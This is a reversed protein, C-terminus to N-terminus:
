PTMIIRGIPPWGGAPRDAAQAGIVGFRAVSLVGLGRFTAGSVMAVNIPFGM